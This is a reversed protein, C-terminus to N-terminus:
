TAQQGSTYEQTSLGLQALCGETSVVASVASCFWLSRSPFQSFDEERHVTLPLDSPFFFNISTLKLSFQINSTIYNLPLSYYKEEYRARSLMESKAWLVATVFGQPVMSIFVCLKNYFSVLLNSSLIHFIGSAERRQVRGQTLDRRRPWSCHARQKECWERTQPWSRHVLSQCSLWKPCGAPM